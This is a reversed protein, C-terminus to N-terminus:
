SKSPHQGSHPKMWRAQAIMREQEIHSIVDAPQPRILWRAEISTRLGDRIARRRKSLDNPCPVPPRRCFRVSAEKTKCYLFCALHKFFLPQPVQIRVLISPTLTRLEVTSSDGVTRQRAHGSVHDPLNLAGNSGSIGALSTPRTANRKRRRLLSSQLLRAQAGPEQKLGM